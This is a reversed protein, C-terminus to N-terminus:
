ARSYIAMLEKQLYRISHDKRVFIRGNEGMRIRKERDLILSSVAKVLEEGSEPDVVIGREDDVIGPIGGVRTAVVPLGNAMAELIVNPTGEHRSTLVLLDSRRYVDQMNEQEGLFLVDDNLGNENVLNELSVRLPGDGAILFTLKSGPHLVRLEVALEIFREPRKESVLRGALLLTVGDRSDFETQDNGDVVANKVLHLSTRDVGMAAARDIALQSNAILRNPMRLHWRGFIGNTSMENVLDSRIAGISTAGVARGALGSYINTYFHASQIVDVPSRRLNSIINKLRLLNNQSAGVWDVKIGLDRIERECAEGKSLCLVRSSVGENRLAQLM